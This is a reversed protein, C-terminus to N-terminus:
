RVGLHDAAALKALGEDRLAPECGDLEVGGVAAHSVRAICPFQARAVTYPAHADIGLMERAWALRERPRGELRAITDQVTDPTSLMVAAQWADCTLIEGGVHVLHVPRQGFEAAVAALARVRHGGHGRLDREALGAFVLQRGALLAAAVHPFLMDGFNHRDFAGFLVVPDRM